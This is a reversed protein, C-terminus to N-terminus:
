IDEVEAGTAKLAAEEDHIAEVAWRGDDREQVFFRLKDYVTANYLTDNEKFMRTNREKERFRLAYCRKQFQAASGKKEFIARAGREAVIAKDMFARCDPFGHPSKPHPM